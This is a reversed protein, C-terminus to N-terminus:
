RRPEMINEGHVVLRSGWLAAIACSAPLTISGIGIPTQNASAFCGCSTDIGRLYTLLQTAVFISFLVAAWRLATARAPPMAILMAGLTLQLFPVTAAVVVGVVPTTLRYAYISSLHAYPNEIHFIASRVLVAGVMITVLVAARRGWSSREQETM